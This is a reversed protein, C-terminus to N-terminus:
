GEMIQQTKKLVSYVPRLFEEPAGRLKENLCKDIALSAHRISRIDDTVELSGDSLSVMQLIVDMNELQRATMGFLFFARESGGKDKADILNVVGERMDPDIEIISKIVGAESAEVAPAKGIKSLTNLFDNVVAQSKQDLHRYEDVVAIIKSILDISIGGDPVQYISTVSSMVPVTHQPPQQYAPEPQSQYIPQEYQQPAAHAPQTKQPAPRQQAAPRPQAIPQQDDLSDLSTFQSDVNDDPTPEQYYDQQAAPSAATTTPQPQQPQQSQHDDMPDEYMSDVISDDDASDDTAAVSDLDGFMMMDDGDDHDVPGNAPGVNALSGADFSDTEEDDDGSDLFSFGLDPM